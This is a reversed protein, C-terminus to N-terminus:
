RALSEMRLHEIGLITEIDILRVGPAQDAFAYRVEGSAGAFKELIRGSLDRVTIEHALPMIGSIGERGVDLNYSIRGIGNGEGGRPHNAIATPIQGPLVKGLSDLERIRINRYWNPSTYQTGSHMQLGIPNAPSATAQTNTLVVSDIFLPVWLMSDVRTGTYSDQRSRFFSYQHVKDGGASQGTGLGGFYMVRLTNWGSDNGAVTSTRWM